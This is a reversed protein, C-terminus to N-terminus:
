YRALLSLVAFHDHQNRIPPPRNIYQWTLGGELSVHDNLARGLGGTQEKKTSFGREFLNGLVEASIGMGDDRVVLHVMQRGNIADISSEIVIRGTSRGTAEIADVAPAEPPKDKAAVPIASVVAAALLVSALYSRM